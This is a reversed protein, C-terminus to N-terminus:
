WVVSVPYQEFIDDKSILTYGEVIAQAILLRDFPDKHYLALDGVKLAHALNIPLIRLDNKEQQEKILEDVPANLSLKGIQSKIQIEWVNVVSLYITNENREDKILDFAKPSLLFSNNDWWIFTHTDLLLNM